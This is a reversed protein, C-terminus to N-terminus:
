LQTRHPCKWEGRFRNVSQINFKNNFYIMTETKKFSLCQKRKVLTKKKKVINFETQKCLIFSVETVVKTILVGYEWVAINGCGFLEQLANGSRARASDVM